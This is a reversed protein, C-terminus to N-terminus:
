RLARLPRSRGLEYKKIWRESITHIPLPNLYHLKEQGERVTVVLETKELLDRRSENALASFVRDMDPPSYAVMLNCTSLPLTPNVTAHM